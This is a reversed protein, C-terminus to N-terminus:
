KFLHEVRNKFGNIYDQPVSEDFTLSVSEGRKVNILARTMDVLRKTYKGTITYAYIDDTSESPWKYPIELGIISRTETSAEILEKLFRQTPLIHFYDSEITFQLKQM